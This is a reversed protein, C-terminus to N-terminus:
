IRVGRGDAMKQHISVLKIKLKAFGLVGLDRSAFNAAGVVSAAHVKLVSVHCRRQTNRLIMFRTAHCEKALGLAAM